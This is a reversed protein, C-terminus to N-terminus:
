QQSKFLIERTGSFTAASPSQDRQFWRSIWRSVKTKRWENSYSSSPSIYLFFSSAQPTLSIWYCGILLYRLWSQEINRCNLLFASIFLPLSFFQPVLTIGPGIVLERNENLVDIVLRLRARLVIWVSQNEEDVTSTRLTNMKNKIVVFSITMTSCLNILFPLLSNSAFIFQHFAIWRSRHAVPFELICM